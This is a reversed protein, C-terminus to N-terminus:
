RNPLSVLARRVNDYAADPDDGRVNPTLFPVTGELYAYVPETQQRYVRLRERFVAETDDSRGRDLIRRLLVDEPVDLKVVADLRLGLEALIDLLAIADELRRPFGDLVFGHRRVDDQSLRRKMLGMVLPFPVLEGRAMIAAVEPDTKAYERLIEGSSIHRAGFEVQIRAAHTGKGSGPPGMIALRLPRSAPAPAAPRPEPRPHPADGILPRFLSAGHAAPLFLSFVLSFLTM